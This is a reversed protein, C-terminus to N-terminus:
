EYLLLLIAQEILHMYDWFLLSLMVAGKLRNLIKLIFSGDRSANKHLVSITKKFRIIDAWEDVLGTACVSYVGNARRWDECREMERSEGM